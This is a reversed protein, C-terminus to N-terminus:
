AVSAQVRRTLARAPDVLTRPLLSQRGRDGFRDKARSKLLRFQVPSMKMEACIREQTQEQVYFRNLVDRDRPSMVELVHQILNEKQRAILNKEPNNRPEPMVCREDLEVNEHHDQANRSRRSNGMRQVVIRIFGMLRRADRLEARQISRLVEIFADHLSDELDQFGVRQALTFRFGTDIIQHLELMADIDGVLLRAVLSAEAEYKGDATPFCPRDISRDLTTKHLQLGSTVTKM